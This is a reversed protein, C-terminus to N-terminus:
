DIIVVATCAVEEIAECPLIIANETLSNSDTFSGLQPSFGVYKALPGNM